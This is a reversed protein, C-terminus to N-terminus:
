LIHHKRFLYLNDSYVLHNLTLMILDADLGYIVTTTKKHYDPNNRIYEFIKHEGEGYEKSTSLKIKNDYKKSLIFYKNLEKDLKEMFKTGPTIAATDWNFTDPVKIISKMIEGQFWSKYRRNKQQNLKAVPAVGDFSIFINKSPKIINIYYDLKSCIDKILEEEFSHNNIFKKLKLNIVADYIISNSDLYLNDININSNDFEKIIDRHNKVIYTFYSPIGM